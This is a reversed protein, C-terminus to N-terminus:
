SECRLAFQLGKALHERFTAQFAHCSSIGHSSWAYLSSYQRNYFSNRGGVPSYYVDAPNADAIGGYNDCIAQATTENYTYGLAFGKSYDVNTTM